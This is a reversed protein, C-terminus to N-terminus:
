FSHRYGVTLEWQYMKLAITQAPDFVNQGKVTVEPAYMVAVSLRSEPQLNWDLGMTYHEEMIGPALINFLVDQKQVPQTTTSIGARLRLDNKVQWEYGLKYVTMDRWGFGAGNKGGLCGSTDGRMCRNVLQDMGNGVSSVKSYRIRQVDFMVVHEPNINWAMGLNWTEPIDFRGKDAFLGAYRDFRSMRIRPQWSAGLTVDPMVNAMVGLKFGFGSSYDYGKDTLHSGDTSFGAFRSLGYAKFRQVAGILSAGFVVNDNLKWSANFSSFAQAMDVGTKGGGLTGPLPQPGMWAQGGKFETNMGGHGYFSLGLALRDNIGWRYGAFPIAFFTNRSDAQQYGDGVSFTFQQPSVFVRSANGRSQYERHPSFMSVGLEYGNEALGLAAPNLGAMVSDQGYAVGAGARGKESLSIGHSFYGNTAQAASGALLLLAAAIRFMM